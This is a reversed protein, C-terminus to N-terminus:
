VKVETQLIKIEGFATELVVRPSVDEPGRRKDMRRQDHFTFWSLFGRPKVCFSVRGRSSNVIRVRCRLRTCGWRLHHASQLEREINPRTTMVVLTLVWGSDMYSKHFKYVSLTLKALQSKSRAARAQTLDQVDGTM